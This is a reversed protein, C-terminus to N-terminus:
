ELDSQQDLMTILRNRDQRVHDKKLDRTIQQYEVSTAHLKERLTILNMEHVTDATSIKDDLSTSSM